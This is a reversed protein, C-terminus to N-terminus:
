RFHWFLAGHIGLYPDRETAPVNRLQVVEVKVIAADEGEGEGLM